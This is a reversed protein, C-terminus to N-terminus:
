GNNIKLNLLRFKEDLYRNLITNVLQKDLGVEKAITSNSNDVIVEGERLPRNFLEIVKQEQEPTYSREYNSMPKIIVYVFICM